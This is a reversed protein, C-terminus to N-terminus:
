VRLLGMANELTNKKQKTEPRTLKIDKKAQSENSKSAMDFSSKASDENIWSYNDNMKELKPNCIIVPYNVLNYKIKKNNERFESLSLTGGFDKLASKPPAFKILNNEGTIVYHM